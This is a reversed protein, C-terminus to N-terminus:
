LPPSQVAFTLGDTTALMGLDVVLRDSLGRETVAQPLWRLLLLGLVVGGAVINLAKAAAFAPPDDLRAPSRRTARIQLPRRM